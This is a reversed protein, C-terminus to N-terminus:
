EEFKMGYYISCLLYRSQLALQHSVLCEALWSIFDVRLTGDLGDDNTILTGFAFDLASATHNHREQVQVWVGLSWDRYGNCEQRRTGERKM